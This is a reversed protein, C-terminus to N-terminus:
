ENTVACRHLRATSKGVRRPKSNMTLVTMAAMGRESHKSSAEQLGPLSLSDESRSRWSADEIVEGSTSFAFGAEANGGANGANCENGNHGHDEAGNRNSGDESEGFLELVEPDETAAKEVKTPDILRQAQAILDKLEHLPIDEVEFTDVMREIEATLLAFTKVEEKLLRFSQGVRMAQPLSNQAARALTDSKRTLHKYKRILGYVSHIMELDEEESVTATGSSSYTSARVRSREMRQLIVKTNKPVPAPPLKTGEVVEEELAELAEPDPDKKPLSSSLSTKGEERRLSIVDQAAITLETALILGARRQICESIPRGERYAVKAAISVDQNLHQVIAVKRSRCVNRVVDELMMHVESMSFTGGVAFHAWIMSEIVGVFERRQSKSWRRAFFEIHDHHKNVLLRHLGLLRRLADVLWRCKLEVFTDEMVSLPIMVRNVCFYWLVTAFMQVFALAIIIKAIQDYVLVDAEQVSQAVIPRCVPLIPLFSLQLAIMRKFAPLVGLIYPFSIKLLLCSFSQMVVTCGLGILGLGLGETLSAVIAIFVLYSGEWVPWLLYQRHLGNCLAGFQQHYAVQFFDHRRAWLAYGELFIVILLWACACLLVHPSQLTDAQDECAEADIAAISNAECHLAVKFTWFAVGPLVVRNMSIIPGLLSSWTLHRNRKFSCLLWPLLLLAYEAIASLLVAWGRAYVSRSMSSDPSCDLLPVLFPMMFPDTVTRLWAYSADNTISILSVSLALDLFIWFSQVGKLLTLLVPGAVHGVSKADLLTAWSILAAALCQVLAIGASKWVLQSFLPCVLCVQGSNLM